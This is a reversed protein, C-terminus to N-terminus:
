FDVFSAIDSIKPIFAILTSAYGVPLIAGIFFDQVARVIDPSTIDWTVKFFKASFGYPGLASNSDISFVIREVKEADLLTELLM